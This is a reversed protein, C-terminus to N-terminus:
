NEEILFFDGLGDIDDVILFVLFTYRGLTTFTHLILM